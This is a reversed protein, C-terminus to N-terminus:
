FKYPVKVIRAEVTPKRHRNVCVCLVRLAHLRFRGLLLRVCAMARRLAIAFTFGDGLTVDVHYFRTGLASDLGHDVIIRGCGIVADVAHADPTPTTSAIAIGVTVRAIAARDTQGAGAARVLGVGHPAGLPDIHRSM